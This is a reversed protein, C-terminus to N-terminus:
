IRPAVGGWIKFFFSAAFTASAVKAADKKKLIQSKESPLGYKM